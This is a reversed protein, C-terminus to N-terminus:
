SKYVRNAVHDRVGELRQVAARLPKSLAVGDYGSKPLELNDIYRTLIKVMDDIKAAVRKHDQAKRLIAAANKFVYGVSDSIYGAQEKTRGGISAGVEKLARITAARVNHVVALMEKPTGGYEEFADGVIETPADDEFSQGGPGNFAESIPRSLVADLKQRYDVM